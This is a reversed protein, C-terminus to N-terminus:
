YNHVFFLILVCSSILSDFLLNSLSFCFIFFSNFSLFLDSSSYLFSNFSNFLSYLCFIFSISFSNFLLSMDSLLKFLSYSCLIFSNFFSNFSLPM